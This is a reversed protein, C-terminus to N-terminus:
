LECTHGVQLPGLPLSCSQGCWSPSVSVSRRHSGGTVSWSPSFSVSRVLLSLGLSVAGLPFSRSQGGTHGVQLPGLPLSQSQGGTHGVQLPGLPLSRSQGGTHGVQLPGLPLYRSQGGTHGVQLPGLPLSQSQGGTHGVQLPGLPLSRSQGCSSPSVSVSWVLLLSRSQGCWSPSVSVSRVLLSLGLSVAGLPLSRSQGCWSPSVSVSRRHSGGTVSWSPSISVSRVLLSLVLSVAGLPLSRSQGGTHGVQLLAEQASQRGPHLRPRLRAPRHLLARRQDHTRREASRVRAGAGVRERPERCSCCVAANILVLSPFLLLLVLCFLFELIVLFYIIKNIVNSDLQVRDIKIVTRSLQSNGLVNCVDSSRRVGSTTPPTTETARCRQTNSSATAPTAGWTPTCGTATCSPRRVRRRCRVRRVWVWARRRAAPVVSYSYSYSYPLTKNLSASLM